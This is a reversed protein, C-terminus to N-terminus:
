WGGQASFFIFVTYAGLVVAVEVCYGHEKSWKEIKGLIAKM